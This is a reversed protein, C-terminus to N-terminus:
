ATVEVEDESKQLEDALNAQRLNQERPESSCRLQRLYTSVLGIQARTMKGEEWTDPM